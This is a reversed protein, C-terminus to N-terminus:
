TLIVNLLRLEIDADATLLSNTDVGLECKYHAQFSEEMLELEDFTDFDEDVYSTMTMMGHRTMNTRPLM